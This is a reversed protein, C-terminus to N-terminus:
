VSAATRPPRLFAGVVAGLLTWTVLTRAGLLLAVSLPAGGIGYTHLDAPIAILEGLVIFFGLRNRYRARFRESTRSLLWAGLLPVVLFEALGLILGLGAAEHGTGSYLIGFVPENEPYRGASTLAPNCLYRGPETVTNRLQTYVVREQPLEKMTLREQFGFVGNVVFTWVLLVAAGAVASVVIRKGM